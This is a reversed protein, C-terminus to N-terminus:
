VNFVRLLSVQQVLAFENGFQIAQEIAQEAFLANGQGAIATGDYQKGFPM